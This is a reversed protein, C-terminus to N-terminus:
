VSELLLGYRQVKQLLYEELGAMDNQLHSTFEIVHCKRKIAEEIADIDKASTLACPRYEGVIFDPKVAPFESFGRSYSGLRRTIAPEYLTSRRQGLRIFDQEFNALEPSTAIAADIDVGLQEAKEGHKRAEDPKAISPAFRILELLREGIDGPSPAECLAFTAKSDLAVWRLAFESEVLRAQRDDEASKGQALISAWKGRMWWIGLHNGRHHEDASLEHDEIFAKATSPLTGLTVLTILNRNAPRGSRREESRLAEDVSQFCEIFGTSNDNLVKYTAVREDKEAADLCYWYSM